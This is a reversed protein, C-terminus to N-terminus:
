FAFILRRAVKSSMFNSTNWLNYSGLRLFMIVNHKFVNSRYFMIKDSKFGAGERSFRKINEGALNM